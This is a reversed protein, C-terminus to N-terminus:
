VKLKLAKLLDLSKLPKFVVIIDEPLLFLNEFTM